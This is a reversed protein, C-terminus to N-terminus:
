AAVPPDALLDVAGRRPRAERDETGVLVEDGLHDVVVGPARTAAADVASASCRAAPLPEVTSAAVRM